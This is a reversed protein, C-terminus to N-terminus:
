AAVPVVVEVRALLDHVVRAGAGAEEKWAGAHQLVGMSVLLFLWGSQRRRRASLLKFKGKKMSNSRECTTRTKYLRVHDDSNRAIKPCLRPNDAIALSVSPGTKLDPRCHWDEAGQPALPCRDIRDVQLACTFMKTGPGASGAPAMEVGAECLPVGRPSLVVDPRTPHQAPAETKLPIVPKVNKEVFWAHIPEADFGADLVAIDIAAGPLTKRLTKFLREFILPGAVVDPVNATNLDIALPLDHKSSGCTIEAYRHGYFTTKANSDWGITADPDSYIRPCACKEFRGHSCTKKGHVEAGTPVVSTDCAVVMRDLKGLLGAEASPLVAVLHLLETLRNVFTAPLDQEARKRIADVVSEATAESPRPRGARRAAAATERKPQPSRARRRETVSPREEHACRPRWPGDLLRQEFDYLTGVGPGPDDNALGALIRLVRSAHLEHALANYAPKGILIGLLAVRWLVVQDRPKGGRPSPALGAELQARAPELDLLLLTEAVDAYQEIQAHLDPSSACAALRDLTAATYVEHQPTPM